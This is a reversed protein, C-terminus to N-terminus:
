LKPNKAKQPKVIEPFNKRPSEGFTQKFSVLFSFVFLKEWITKKKALSFSFFFSLEIIKPTPFSLNELFPFFQLFFVIKGPFFGTKAALREFFISNPANEKFFVVKKKEPHPNKAL